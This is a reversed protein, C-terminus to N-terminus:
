GPRKKQADSPTGRPFEDCDGIDPSSDAEFDVFCKQLELEISDSALRILVLEYHLPVDNPDSVAVIAKPEAVWVLRAINGDIRKLVTASLERSRRWRGLPNPQRVALYGGRPVGSTWGSSLQRAIRSVITIDGDALSYGIVVGPIPTDVIIDPKPEDPDWWHDDRLQM